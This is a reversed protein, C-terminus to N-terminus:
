KIKDLWEKNEWEWLTKAALFAKINHEFGELEKIECQGKMESWQHPCAGHEGRIKVNGGKDRMTAGCLLCTKAQDLRLIWSALPPLNPDESFAEVYAATQMGFDRYIAISTKIDLIGVRGDVEAL